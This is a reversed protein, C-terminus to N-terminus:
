AACRSRSPTWSEKPSASPTVPGALGVYKGHGAESCSHQRLCRFRANVVGSPTEYPIMLRGVYREHGVIPHSVVGLKFRNAVEETFGRGLLYAQTPSDGALDQRYQSTAAGLALRQEPTPLRM